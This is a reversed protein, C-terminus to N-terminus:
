FSYKLRAFGLWARVDILQTDGANTFYQSIVSFDLNEYLSYDLFLGAFCTKLGSMYMGSASLSLRPTIPYMIQGFYNWDNMPLVQTSLPASILNLIGKASFVSELNNYLVEGQLLINNSFIYDASVSVNITGFADAFNEMPQYYSFEGRLNVGKFDATCAGGLVIDSEAHVGAIVQYDFRKMNGHHLFAATVKDDHNLSVVWESFSTENHYFTGRFADCGPREVYDFDFFSYTNFLDNPNWIFTQGWNIRQRGLKLSWKGKEFTVFLRDCATNFLLKKNNIWNWSLDVQGNDFDISEAYFDYKVFDGTFLRNRIGADIRWHEGPQWGFNLRNHVINQSYWSNNLNQTLTSFMDSVYGSFEVRNKEQSFVNSFMFILCLLSLQKKM